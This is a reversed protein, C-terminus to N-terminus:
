GFARAGYWAVSAALLVVSVPEVVFRGYSEGFRGRALALLPWLAAVFLLQAAEVGANFALLTAAITADAFGSEVLAGAFGFGHLLGFVFAVLWRLRRRDPWRAALALYCLAFLGIGVLPLLPVRGAGVLAAAAAPALVFAAAASPHRTAAGSRLTLNEVALLAISVAILAEISPAPPRMVGLSALTLTLTHAVTFATIVVAVDALAVAVVVLGLVFFLHDLGASIHDVGLRFSDRWLAGPAAATASDPQRWRPREAYLVAEFGDGVDIKVFSLHPTGLLRPLRSEVEFRGEAPCDVRWALSVRGASAAERLPAAVAQCDVEGRRAPLASAVAISGAREAAPGAYAAEPIRTLDRSDIRLTVDAGTADVVWTSYSVSREHAAAFNTPLLAAVAVLAAVIEVAGRRMAETWTV